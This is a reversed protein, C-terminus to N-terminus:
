SQQLRAMVLSLSDMEVTLNKTWLNSINWSKVGEVSNRHVGHRCM